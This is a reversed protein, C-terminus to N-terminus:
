LVGAGCVGLGASESAEGVGEWKGMRSSAHDVGRLRSAGLASCVLPLGWCVVTTVGGRGARATRGAWRGATRDGDQDAEGACRGVGWTAERVNLM